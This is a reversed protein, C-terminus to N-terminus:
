IWCNLHVAAVMLTDSAEKLRGAIFLVFEQDDNHLYTEEYVQFLSPSHCHQELFGQLKRVDTLFSEPHVVEQGDDSSNEHFWVNLSTLFHEVTFATHKMKQFNHFWEFREDKTVPFSSYSDFRHWKSVLTGNWDHVCFALSELFEETTIPPPERRLVTLVTVEPPLQESDELEKDSLVIRQLLAPIGLPKQLADKVMAVSSDPAVQIKIINGAMTSVELDRFEHTQPIESGPDPESVSVSSIRAEPILYVEFSITTPSEVEVAKVHDLNMKDWLKQLEDGIDEDSMPMEGDEGAVPLASSPGYGHSDM